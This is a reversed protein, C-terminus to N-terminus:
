SASWADRLRTVDRLVAEPDAGNAGVEFTRICGPAVADLAAIFPQWETSGAGPLLHQDEGLGDSDQIHVALLTTGAARAEDTLVSKWAAFDGGCQQAAAPIATAILLALGAAIRKM